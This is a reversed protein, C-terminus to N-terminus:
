VFIDVVGEGAGAAFMEVATVIGDETPKKNVWTEAIMDERLHLNFEPDLVNYWSGHEVLKKVPGTHIQICGKNGVFVMIECERDCAMELSKRLSDDPVRYAFHSGIKRFAQQRGVKFKRLMPFFDHTDKLNDWATRFGAWDIESDPRDPAEPDYAQTTISDSQDDSKFQKILAHYAAEDSKHTLYVKHVAEGAKNYFQLSRRPKDEEGETVAFAHEWHNFFLRLDIDPNVFQGMRLKGHTVPNFNDYVGKREHVCAENRTLAMVHGLTKIAPLVEYPECVLRTNRTGVHAAVLEGESIGIEAAANRARIAPDKEKLGKYRERIFAGSLKEPQQEEIKLAPEGM